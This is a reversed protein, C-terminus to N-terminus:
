RGDAGNGGGNGREDAGDGSIGMTGAMGAGPALPLIKHAPNVPKWRLKVTDPTAETVLFEVAFSQRGDNIEQYYVHGAQPIISNHQWAPNAPPTAVPSGFTVTGLDVIRSKMGGTPNIFIQGSRDFVLDVFNCHVAVDQSALRFSYASTGYAGNDVRKTLVVEAPVPEVANTVVSQTQTQATQDSVLMAGLAAAATFLIVIVLNKM